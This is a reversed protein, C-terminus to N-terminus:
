RASKVREAWERAALKPDINKWTAWENVAVLRAFKSGINQRIGLVLTNVFAVIWEEKATPPAM